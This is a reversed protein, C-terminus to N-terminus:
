GQVPHFGQSMGFRRGNNFRSGYNFGNYRIQGNSTDQNNSSNSYGQGIPNVAYGQGNPNKFRYNQIQNVRVEKVPTYSDLVSYIKNTTETDSRGVDSTLAVLLKLLVSDNPFKIRTNRLKNVNKTVDAPRYCCHNYSKKISSTITSSTIPLSQRPSSTPTGPQSRQSLQQLQQQLLQQQIITEQQQQLHNCTISNNNINNSNNDLEEQNNNENNNNNNTSM